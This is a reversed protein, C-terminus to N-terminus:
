DNRCLENFSRASSTVAVAFIVEQDLAQARTRYVSQPHDKDIPSWLNEWQQLIEVV